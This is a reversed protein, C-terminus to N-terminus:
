RINLSGSYVVKNNKIVYIHPYLNFELKREIEQSDVTYLKTFSYGLRDVLAVTEIFSDRKFPNNISYFEINSNGDYKEKVKEFDSFTKFSSGCSTTWFSLIIMKEKSLNVPQQNEVVLNLSPMDIRAAVTELNRQVNFIRWNPYLVFSTAPIALIAIIM